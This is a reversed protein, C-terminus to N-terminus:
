RRAGMSDPAFGVPRPERRIPTSGPGSVSALGVPLDQSITPQLEDPGVPVLSQGLGAAPGHPELQKAIFEDFSFRLQTRLDPLSKRIQGQARGGLILDDRRNQPHETYRRM